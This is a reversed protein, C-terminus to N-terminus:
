WAESDETAACLATYQDRPIEVERHPFAALEFPPWDQAPTVLVYTDACAPDMVDHRTLWDNVEVSDLAPAYELAPAWEMGPVRTPNTLVTLVVAPCFGDDPLTPSSM